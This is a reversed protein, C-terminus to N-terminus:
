IEFPIPLSKRYRLVNTSIGLHNSDKDKKVGVGVMGDRTGTAVGAIRKVDVPDNLPNGTARPNERWCGVWVVWCRGKGKFVDFL